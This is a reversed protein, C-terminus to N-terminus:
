EGRSLVSAIADCIMGIRSSYVDADATSDVFCVEILISPMLTQNLFYLDTRQKAGRNTFGAEGLAGAMSTALEEQTAHLCETGMASTTEVYANFHVSVDLDRNMSNHFDVITALNDSQDLSEDDHFTIANVGRMRLRLAVEEVVVRAETVEDLVGSAGRVYLGHGSSIVITPYARVPRHRFQPVFPYTVEVEDDTQLGLLAMLGPSIDAARDTDDHPGWDAPHARLFRGTRVNQVLAMGELLSEKPTEDYNWRCAIYLADPNLRRALGTTGPPQYSLFLHPAQEVEYIFALGETPSVGMDQPGGFWSVKGRITTM